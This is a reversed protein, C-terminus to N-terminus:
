QNRTLVWLDRILFRQFDFIQERLRANILM